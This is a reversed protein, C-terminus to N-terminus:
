LEYLYQTLISLTNATEVPFGMPIGLSGMGYCSGEHKYVCTEEDKPHVHIFNM